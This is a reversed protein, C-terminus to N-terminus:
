YSMFVVCCPCVRSLIVSQADTLGILCNLSLFFWVQEAVQKALQERRAKLQSINPEHTADEVADEAASTYSSESAEEAEDEVVIDGSV